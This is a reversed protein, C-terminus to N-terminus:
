WGNPKGRAGSETEKVPLVLTWAGCPPRKKSCNVAATAWAKARIWMELTRWLALTLFCVLIHAEVWETKHHFVRRLNM